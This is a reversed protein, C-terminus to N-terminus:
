EDVDLCDAVSGGPRQDVVGADGGARLDDDVGLDNVGVVIVLQVRPLTPVYGVVRRKSRRTVLRHVEELRIHIDSRQDLDVLLPVHHAVLNRCDGAVHSAVLLDTARTTCCRPQGHEHAVGALGELIDSGGDVAVDRSRQEVFQKVHHHQGLGTGEFAVLQDHDLADVMCDLALLIPHALKLEELQGGVRNVHCDKPRFSPRINEARHGLIKSEFM